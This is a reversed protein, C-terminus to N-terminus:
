KKVLKKTVSGQPTDVKVIYVGQSLNQLNMEYSDSVSSFSQSHVLRGSVAYVAVSTVDTAQAFKLNVIGNTPNPYVSLQAANFSPASLNNIVLSYDEMEGFNNLPDTAGCSMEWTINDPAMAFVIVRMRTTGNLATSPIAIDGTLAQNLGTGLDTFEDEEFTGNQNFDVWVGVSEFLWGGGSPGVTVSIPVSTGAEVTAPAVTATYDSYGTTTSGCSSPNVISGFSVNLIVDGDACNFDIENTCYCDVATNQGVAVVSSVASEGSPTCTVNLRYSSATSQDAVTYATSSQADGLATWTDGGDTSVEWQFTLGAAFTIDADLTFPTQACASNVSATAIGVEPAGTCDASPTVSLTYDEAQGFGSGVQCANASYASFRKMVRMRTTGGQASIPVEITSELVPGSGNNGVISGLDYHGDDFLGNQDWDVFVRFYNTYPGDTNGNVTIPYTVGATVNGVIATFDELPLGGPITAPSPNNIGAFNVLTIPEVGSTFTVPCYPEPFQAHASLGILLGLATIGKKYFHVM